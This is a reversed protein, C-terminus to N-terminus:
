MAKAGGPTFISDDIKAPQIELYELRTITKMQPGFLERIEMEAVVSRGGVTRFKTFTVERALRGSTFSFVLKRPLREGEADLWLTARPYIATPAKATLDIVHCVRDGVKETGPRLAPEFDEAFRISAVDAFSAGGMIRQNQTIPVPHEAGPVILWMKPGVTLAKRGDNKGGRFVILARERGKVYIDFDATGLQKGDEFQSARARLKAEGFASRAADVGKLWGVVEEQTQGLLVAAMLMAGLASLPHRVAKKCM